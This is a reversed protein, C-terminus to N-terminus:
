PRDGSSEGDPASYHVFGPGSNYINLPVITEVFKRDVDRRMPKAADKCFEVCGSEARSVREHPRLDFVDPEGIHDVCPIIADTGATTRTRIIRKPPLVIDTKKSRLLYSFGPDVAHIDSRRLRRSLQVELRDEFNVIRPDMHRLVNAAGVAALVDAHAGTQKYIKYRDMRVGLSRGCHREIEGFSGFDHLSFRM